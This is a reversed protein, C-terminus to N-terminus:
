RSLNYLSFADKILGSGIASLIREGESWSITGRGMRSKLIAEAMVPNKANVTAINRLQGSAVGGKEMSAALDILEKLEDWSRSDFRYLSEEDASTSGLIAFAVRNKGEEKARQLLRASSELGVYIPLQYQFMSVGASMTCAGATAENFKHAVEMATELAVQGPVLALLDDGGAFVISNSTARRSIVPGFEQECTRHILGSVTSVRSPTSAKGLEKFVKGAFVQGIRDGDARICGVLNNKDKLDDLWIGKGKQRMEWCVDCLREPRPSADIPLIRLDDDKSAQRSGCVDCAEAGEPVDIRPLHIRKGKEIRMNAMAKEWLSGFNRMFANGDATISAVTMTARGSTAEEFSQKMTEMVEEKRSTPSLVLASGGAAFLVCEPGLKEAMANRVEETAYKILASRSNLDPLRKSENIFGSIRDADGSILAFNYCSLNTGNSGDLYICTSFAATLKLHDWLSVDNNPKRTDAPVKHLRSKRLAEFVKTYCGKPDKRLEGELSGLSAAIEQSIYALDRAELKGATKDKSLIHALEIPPTPLPTGPMHAESRDSGAAINDALAIIWQLRNEPHYMEPYSPGTHHKCANEAIEEGLCRKVFSRTYSVHKSWGERNAWCELKGIDHLLASLRVTELESM